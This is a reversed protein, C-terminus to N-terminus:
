VFHQAQLPSSLVDMIINTGKTNRPYAARNAALWGYIVHLDPEGQVYHYVGSRAEVRRFWGYFLFVDGEGVGQNQLHREAAGAQGFLPKWGALRPISQANLDPDLHAPMEPTIRGRTLDHVVKGLSQGDFM